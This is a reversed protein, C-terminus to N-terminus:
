KVARKKRAILIITAGSVMVLGAFLFIVAGNGGTGPISFGQKRNAVKVVVVGSENDASITVSEPKGLLLYHKKTGKDDYVPAEKEVLWYTGTKLGQFYAEGNTNTTVTKGIRSTGNKADKETLYLAFKAGSLRTDEKGEEHKIVTINGVYVNIPLSEKEGATGWKNEYSIVATNTINGPNETVSDAIITQFEMTLTNKALMEVNTFTVKIGNTFDATFGETIPNGNLKVVLSNQMYTLRADLQDTVEYKKYTAIDAPVTPTITWKVSDKVNASDKDAKKEITPTKIDTASVKVTNASMKGDETVVANRDISFQVPTTDIGYDAPAETEVFQYAGKFLGNVAIKGSADTTFIRVRGETDTMDQYTDNVLQQLKFKAGKLAKNTEGDTKTLVAAGLVAANKPYAHVDYNWSTGDANMMPLDVLFPACTEYVKDPVKTEVVLYRGQSLETFTATGDEKTTEVASAAAGEPVTTELEDADVKYLAFTVDALPLANDPITVDTTGNGEAGAQELSEMEYKHITLTVEKKTDIIGANGTKAEEAANVTGCGLILSMALTVAGVKKLWKRKIM